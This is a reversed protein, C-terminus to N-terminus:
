EGDFDANPLAAQYKKAAEEATLNEGLPQVPSATIKVEDVYGFHNKGLFILNAPNGKAENVAIEWGEEILRYAKKILAVREFNLGRRVETKWCALTHRDVGLANALGVVGPKIDNEMCHNFYWVVREEVQENSDLDIPPLNFSALAHRLYRTNDGPKMYEQGFNALDPRNRTKKVIQTATDNAKTKKKTDSM